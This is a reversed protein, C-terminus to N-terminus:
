EGRSGPNKASTSAAIRLQGLGSSRAAFAKLLCELDCSIGNDARELLESRDRM